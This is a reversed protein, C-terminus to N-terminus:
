TPRGEPDSDSSFFALLVSILLFGALAMVPISVFGFANVWKAYCPNAPDCAFGGQLATVNQILIHWISIGLGILSLPLGYFRLMRDRRLAGVLLIVALSYMAIRQYWCLKCPTFGYGESYILSGVMSSFAVTWALWRSADAVGARSGAPAFFRVGLATLALAVAVLAMAATFRSYALVNM